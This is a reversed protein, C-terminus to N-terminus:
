GRDEGVEVLHQEGLRRVEQQVVAVREDHPQAAREKHRAAAVSPAHDSRRMRQGRQTGAIKRAQAITKWMIGGTASAPAHNVIARVTPSSLVKAPSM